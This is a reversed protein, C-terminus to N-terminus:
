LLFIFHVEVCLAFYFGINTLATIYHYKKQSAIYLDPIPLTFPNVKSFLRKVVQSLSRVVWGGKNRGINHLFLHIILIQEFTIGGCM